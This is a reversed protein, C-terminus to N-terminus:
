ISWDSGHNIAVYIFTVLIGLLLTKYSLNLYKFKKFYLVNGTQHLDDVIAEYIREDSQAIHAMKERFEEQPVQASFAFFLWNPKSIGDLDIKYKPMVSMLAFAASLLVFASFVLPWAGTKEFDLRGLLLTLVVVEAGLLISAKQDAMMNLQMRGQQATRLMYDVAPRAEVTKFSYASSDKEHTPM